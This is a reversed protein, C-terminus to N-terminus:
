AFFERDEEVIDFKLEAAIPRPARSGPKQPELLPGLQDSGAIVSPVAWDLLEGGVFEDGRIAARALRVADVIAYGSAVGQYFFRAFLWETRFPLVARMGIVTPCSVGVCQDATSLGQRWEHPLTHSVAPTRATECGAFLSLRLQPCLRLLATVAEAQT